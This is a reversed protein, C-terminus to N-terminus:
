HHEDINKNSNDKSSIEAWIELSDGRMTESDMSRVRGKNKTDDKKLVNSLLQKLSVPCCNWNIIM